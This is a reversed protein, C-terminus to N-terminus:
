YLVVHGHKSGGRKSYYPEFAKATFTELKNATKRDDKLFPLVQVRTCTICRHQIAKKKIFSFHM